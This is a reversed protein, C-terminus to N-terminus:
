GDADSSREGSTHTTRELHLAELEALAEHDKPRGAARKLVILEALTVCRCRFGFLLLDETHPLLEGYTGGGTVEGLLDLDGLTTELTFNLGRAITASDFVFPLGPPAGRLYPRLPTLARVLRDINAGARDYVVDVDFTARASGHVTAALGGVLIFDVGGELLKRLLGEFDTPKM